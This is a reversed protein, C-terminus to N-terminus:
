NRRPTFASAVLATFAATRDFYIDGSEYVNSLVEQVYRIHYDDTTRIFHDYAFGCRDWARSVDRQDSRYVGEARDGSPRRRPSRTVM